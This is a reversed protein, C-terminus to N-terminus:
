RIKQIKKKNIRYIRSPTGKDTLPEIVVDAMSRAWQEDYPKGSPNASTTYAWSLKSILALHKPNHIVRYSTGRPLIFTSKRARRVRNKHQNPIRTLTNLTRLSDVAKIYHKHPPRHKIETLRQADQSVFGVTTDTQTLFVLDKM